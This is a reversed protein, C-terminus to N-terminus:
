GNGGGLVPSRQQLSKWFADEQSPEDARIPGQAGRLTHSPLSFKDYMDGEYRGSSETKVTEDSRIPGRAGREQRGASLVDYSDGEYATAGLAPAASVLFAAIVCGSKLLLNTKM